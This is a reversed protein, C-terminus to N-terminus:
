YNKKAEKAFRFGHMDFFDKSCTITEPQFSPDILFKTYDSMISSMFELFADRVEFYDIPHDEEPDIFTMNFALDCQKLM